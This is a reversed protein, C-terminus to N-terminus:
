KITPTKETNNYPKKRAICIAKLYSSNRYSALISNFHISTKLNCHSTNINVGWEYKTSLALFPCLQKTQQHM